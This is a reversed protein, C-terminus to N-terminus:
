FNLNVSFGVNRTTPMVGSQWGQVNGSSQSAEPDAHPLNKHIIWLNSGILSFSAGRIFSKDLVKGPITYTLTVERLKVFSADYVFAKNPNRAYGFVRYDNGAVRRTNPTGEETVGELLVGGSNPAYGSEFGVEPDNYAIPDRVPNGLDNIFDTEEYLGTALGYYQDLSFIDGGQQMDILFSLAWGKYSFRNNIGGIWDPNVNGLVIDSTATQLYYGNAGVMRQGNEHYVYDTGQITGYPEGVRANITIGGQLSALQLNELGPALSVVENNNKAWNLTIDWRANNNAIPSGTLQIEIGTNQVEGANVFKTTYGTTPSVEVPIIQDVTNDKYVSLDLKIRNTLMGLELGAELSTTREPELNPNNKTNPVSFLPATGFSNFQRYADVISAFPADNGVEAYNLRLKGLQLWSTNGMLNSFIWSLSVSPYYYANNEKPLTSSQDRRITGDLFLQDFFGISASAYIGNVGVEELREEPNLMPNRSNSLSYLEPVILGGNTSAFVQDIKTRNINTGLVLNLNLNETLRQYYRGMLDLNTGIFNRTFRSYGSTEDPREVGMEGAVSGVAKREEQLEAYTDASVRGMISFADSLKWDAQLYGIVRDRNDTEYNKFRIWYPNDWYSPTIDEPSKPNWTINQDTQEFLEKQRQMDVNTQFWQRFSSLINDSYGTSNRGLGNTNVYNASATVKVAKVVDYSGVLMVNHRIIHSNPMIGKQDLNQYSLRFDAKEGGGSVEVSNTLSIPTDFFTIPGNKPHVWPMPKKYNPSAPYYSEWQYVMMSPDFKEGFSADEYTPVNYDTVGDGNVDYFYEFGPFARPYGAVLTDSYFPGYGGGYNTQYKPFTSKDIFGTTVNSSVSVGVSKTQSRTGKKTTIMVVGNAAKSGYLATAAAGKLINISEIDNPNIDSATNGYDYGSRGTIQGLNNTNSNNVPVGDIVFLAQNNGTLSSSGRIVVNTSGGINNNAKIQVGAARGSLNNIFNDSRVRNMEDGSVQQTAYGLSKKERSIGLATVVVGEIDVAETELTVNIVTQTGITIEKTAMGVFSFQLVQADAPVKLSYRGDVDTTVGITTGKVQVAAGPIPQGDEASTVVGTITTQALAFQVCSFMVVMLFVIKRM